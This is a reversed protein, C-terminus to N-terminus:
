LYIFKLNIIVKSMVKFNAWYNEWNKNINQKYNRRINTKSIYDELMFWSKYYYIFLEIFICLKSSIM